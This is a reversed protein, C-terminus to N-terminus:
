YNELIVNNVTKWFGVEKKRKKKNTFFIESTSIVGV